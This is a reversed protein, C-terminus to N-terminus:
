VSFSTGEENRDVKGRSLVDVNEGSAEFSSRRRRGGEEVGRWTAPM